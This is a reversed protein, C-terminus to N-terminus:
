RVSPRIINTKSSPNGTRLECSHEHCPKPFGPLSYRHRAIWRYVSPGIWRTPPLSMLWGLFRLRPLERLVAIWGFYGVHWSGDATRVHMEADLRERAFPARAAVNPDNYDRFALRHQIDLPEIRAQVARCFPCEGDMYVEVENTENM